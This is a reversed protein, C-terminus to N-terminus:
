TCAGLRSMNGNIYSIAWTVIPKSLFLNCWAHDNDENSTHRRLWALRVKLRKVQYCVQELVAALKVPKQETM